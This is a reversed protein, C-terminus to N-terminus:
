LSGLAACSLAHYGQAVEAFHFNGMFQIIKNPEELRISQYQDDSSRRVGRIGLSLPLPVGEQWLIFIPGKSGPLFQILNPMM